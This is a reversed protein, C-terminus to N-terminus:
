KFGRRLDVFLSRADAPYFYHGAWSSYGAFAAYRKDLANLLKATVTWPKLNWSGQLNVVAYDAATGHTAGLDGSYPRSGVFNVGATYSARGASWILQASALDRPVSPIRSGAYPGSRFEAETYAYALRAKLRESVKWDLETELGQHRTPDFNVNASAAGDYGIEDSLNMRYVAASVQVPGRTLGGGLEASTGHQPRLDGAFVPAYTIPDYNFLEDTNPFRFTSGVKGYVRWGEEQYNAGLDYANRTRTADGTMAPSFASAQQRANQEVRQSRGGLTITWADTLRTSNQVYTASSTQDASQNPTTAYRAGVHGSYYDVGVVTESAMRGLDHRWRLRPTLSLNDKSRDAVSGFSAYDAHQDEHESGLEAELTLDDALFLKVGPHFRYGDRRQNDDPNTSARPNDRYAAQLLYGPLGSADHYLDYDVFAEGAPLYRGARGAVSQQEQWSNDRWGDAAAYHAFIRAYGADSGDAASADVGRYGYSGASMSVSSGPKSSQDTIINIVGGSARDGYLVTGAGRIIEIRRISDLPIASWSIPAMDIPNFRQGDVLILTNSTATDGFGRIDVTADMGMNGYLTSVDVGAQTKLVDPLDLAPVARIDDRDVISVNAPVRAVSSAFRTATVVIAADDNSADDAALAAVSVASSVALALPQLRITLDNERDGTLTGAPRCTTAIFVIPSLPGPLRVQWRM